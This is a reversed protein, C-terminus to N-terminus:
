RATTRVKAKWYDCFEEIEDRTINIGELTITEGSKSRQLIREWSALLKEPFTLPQTHLHRVM